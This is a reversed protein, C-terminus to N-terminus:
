PAGGGVTELQANAPGTGSCDQNRVVERTEAPPAIEPPYPARALHTLTFSKLPPGHTAANYHECVYRGLPAYEKLRYPLQMWPTNFFSSRM